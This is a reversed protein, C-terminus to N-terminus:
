ASAAARRELLGLGNPGHWWGRFWAKFAAAQERRSLSLPMAFSAKGLGRCEAILKFGWPIPLKEIHGSVDELSAALHLFRADDQSSHADLIAMVLEPLVAAVGSIIGDCCDAELAKVLMSGQGVLKATGRGVAGVRSLTELSGSSDSVGILNPIDLCLSSVVAADIPTAHRPVNDLILPRDLKRAVEDFFSRLDSQDYRYYSPPPVLVADAGMDFAERGLRIVQESSPAGIGCIMQQDGAMMRTRTFMEIREDSSVGLYEGEAAAVCIGKAGKELAFTASRDFARFDVAGREDRPTVLSAIPRADITYSM